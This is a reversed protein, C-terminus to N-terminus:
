DVLVLGFSPLSDLRASASQITAFTIGDWYRPFEGEVLQHTPVWKPLQYWFARHLQNVLERTHALVLVRGDQILGDRIFDAVTEAMVVTKGLGTALVVQGRGTDLLAERFRSSAVEQYDRLEKRAPPYEPSRNMLALLEAPGAMQIKWGQAREYRARE